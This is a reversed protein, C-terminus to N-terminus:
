ISPNIKITYTHAILYTIDWPDTMTIPHPLVRGSVLLQFTGKKPVTLLASKWDWAWMNTKPLTNSTVYRRVKPLGQATELRKKWSRWTSNLFFQVCSAHLLYRKEAECTNTTTALTDTYRTMKKQTNKKKPPFRSRRKSDKQPIQTTYVKLFPVVFHLTTHCNALPMCQGSCSIKTVKMNLNWVLVKTTHILNWTWPAKRCTFIIPPWPM